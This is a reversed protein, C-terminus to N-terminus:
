TPSSAKSQKCQSDKKRNLAYMIKMADEKNFCFCIIEDGSVVSYKIFNVNDDIDEFYASEVGYAM